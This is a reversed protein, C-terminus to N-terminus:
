LTRMFSELKPTWRDRNFALSPHISVNYGDTGGDADKTYISGTTHFTDFYPIGWKKCASYIMEFCSECKTYSYDRVPPSSCYGIKSSRFYTFLKKAIDEFGGITTTLDPEYTASGVSQGVNDGYGEQLEGLTLSRILDNIGGEFIIYDPMHVNGALYDAIFQNVQTVIWNNREAGDLDTFTNGATQAFTAGGVAYNYITMSPNNEFILRAPPAYNYYAESSFPTKYNDNALFLGGVTNSGVGLFISDGFFVATKGYLPNFSFMDKETLASMVKEPSNMLLELMNHPIYPIGGYPIFGVESYIDGYETYNWIMIQKNYEQRTDNDTSTPISIKVYMAGEPITIDKTGSTASNSSNASLYTKESDYFSASWNYGKNNTLLSVLHYINGAVVSIYDTTTFGKRKTNWAGSEFSNYEWDCAKPNFLNVDPYKFNFFNTKQPTVEEKEIEVEIYNEKVRTIPEHYPEYPKIEDYNLIFNAYSSSIQVRCYAAGEPVVYGQAPRSAKKGSIFTKSEDYFLLREIQVNQAKAVWGNNRYLVKGVEVPIFGSVTYGSAEQLGETNTANAFGYDVLVDPDNPNYLNVSEIIETIEGSTVINVPLQESLIRGNKDLGAYGGAVGKNAKDEKGSIDPIETKKAYTTPIKNLTDRNEQVAKAMQNIPEGSAKTVNDVIDQWIFEDM